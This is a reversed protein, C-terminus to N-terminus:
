RLIFPFLLSFFLKFFGVSSVISSGIVLVLLLPVDQKGNRTVRPTEKGVLAEILYSKGALFWSSLCTQNSVTSTLRPPSPHTSKGVGAEGAVCISLNKTRTM